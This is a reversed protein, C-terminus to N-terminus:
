TFGKAKLITILQDNNGFSKADDDAKTKRGAKPTAKVETKPTAKVETKPTAKTDANPEVVDVKAEAKPTADAKTQNMDPAIIKEVSKVLSKGNNTVIYKHDTFEVRFSQSDVILGVSLITGNNTDYKLDSVQISASM